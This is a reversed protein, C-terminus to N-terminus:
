DAAATIPGAKLGIHGVELSPDCHMAFITSVGDLLGEDIVDLAGGPMQEEAHQFILRVRGPLQRQALELGAGLVVATHVDHGCAHCVGDITSRYPVDKEDQVPLADIDARLAVLPGERGVDCVLGSGAALVKPSLGAAALHDALVATTRREQRGLEPHRHLDRRVEVLDLNM